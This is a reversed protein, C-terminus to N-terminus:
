LLVVNVMEALYEFQSCIKELFAFREENYFFTVAIQLKKM